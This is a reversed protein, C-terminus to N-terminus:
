NRAAGLLQLTYDVMRDCIGALSLRCSPRYWTYVWSIMGTIAFGALQPDDVKFEGCDIGDKILSTLQEDYERKLQSIAIRDDEPINAAE